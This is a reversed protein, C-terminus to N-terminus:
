PLSPEDVAEITTVREVRAAHARRLEDTEGPVRVFTGCSQEGAMVEAAFEPPHATEIRYTAIIRDSPMEFKGNFFQLSHRRLRCHLKKQLPLATVIAGRIRVISDNHILISGRSM